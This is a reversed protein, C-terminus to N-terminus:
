CIGSESALLFDENLLSCVYLVPKATILQADRVSEKEAESRLGTRNSKPQEESARRISKPHEETATQNSDPQQGTATRDSDPQQSTSPKSM